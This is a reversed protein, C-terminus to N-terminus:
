RMVLSAASREILAGFSGRMGRDWWPPSEHSRSAMPMGRARARRREACPSNSTDKDKRAAYRAVKAAKKKARAKDRTKRSM